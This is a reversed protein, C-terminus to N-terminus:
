SSLFFIEVSLEANEHDLTQCILGSAPLKGQICNETIRHSLSNFLCVIKVRERHMKHWSWRQLVMTSERLNQFEGHDNDM